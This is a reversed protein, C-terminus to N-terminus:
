KRRFFALGLIAILGLTAPEPVIIGTILMNNNVDIYPHEPGTIGHEYSLFISNTSGSIGETGNATYFLTNIDWPEIGGIVTVNVTISNVEAGSIDLLGRVDVLDSSTGNEVEWDYMSGNQMELNWCGLAGISNGPSITAGSTIILDSASTEWGLFGTGGVKAGPKLEFGADTGGYWGGNNIFAANEIVIKDQISCGNELVLTGGSLKIHAGNDVGPSWFLNTVTLIGAASGTIELYQDAFSGDGPTMVLNSVKQTNNNLDLSVSTTDLANHLEMRLETFPFGQNVNLEFIPSCGWNDLITDGGYTNAANINVTNIHTANDSHPLFHLKYPGSVPSNLNLISGDGGVGFQCDASLTVAGNINITNTLNDSDIVSSWENAGLTLPSNIGIGGGFSPKIVAFDVTISQCNATKTNAIELISGISAIVDANQLATDWALSLMGEVITVTGSIPSDYLNLIKFGTKNFGNSGSLNANISAGWVGGDVNIVPTSGGDDLTLTNGEGSLWWHQNAGADSFNITGLTRNTQMNIVALATIGNTFYAISTSDDAINGDIWNGSDSYDGGTTVAWSGDQAANATITCLCVTLLIATALQTLKKM